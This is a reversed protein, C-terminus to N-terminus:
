LVDMLEPVSHQGDHQESARSRGRAAGSSRQELMAGGRLRLTTPATADFSMECSMEARGMHSRHSGAPRARTPPEVLVCRRADHPCDSWGDDLRGGSVDDAGDQGIAPRASVGVGAVVFLGGPFAGADERLFRARDSADALRRSLIKIAIRRGHDLQEAAYVEGMGGRGLLREIRYPGFTQGPTLRLGGGQGGDSPRDPSLRTPEDATLTAAAAQQLLCAHCWAAPADAPM